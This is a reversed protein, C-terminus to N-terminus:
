METSHAGDWDQPVGTESMKKIREEYIDFLAIKAGPSQQAKELMNRATVLDGSRYSALLQRHTDDLARFSKSSKIFPNGVLAYISFPRDTNRTRLKDLELFAFHHHTQRYVVEDVIMAPGYIESQLRLFAARDVAPGIASYRNNRGHGMPGTFCRGTAVGIALHVQMGRTRSSNELDSNIKDMSEIFRLAAACGAQIHDAMEVPANYYAFIRGGEAQDAVGGTEIITQRLDLSAAALLKTVDDPLNEMKQLDEDALRLECSLVTIERLVGDLIEEAGDDRLKKMALEPLTDHFSGRVTDDRLVGGISKGGAVSLAGIFMAATSPIPNILLGSMAFASFAIALLALSVFVAFGVAHWFQLRQATMIAAAGFIMVAIAEVYGTWPPRRPAEGAVIQAAALAHLAAPTVPGRATAVSAGLETDLGILIVTNSLQHNSGAGALVRAASTTPITLNKPLYLRMASTESVNFRREGISVSQLTRGQSNAASMKITATVVDDGSALRAAELSIAAAPAGDLSWILPTRRVISDGDPALAAIVPPAARALEANLGYLYRAAPLALFDGRYDDIQLWSASNIDTRELASARNPNAPPTGSVGVAGSIKSFAAALREDTHPLLALQQALAADRAGSLWFEGIIEPSLPDPADVPETLIVGKAGAAAAAEVLEALVTRPWPWPGVQDVSDRDILVLHFDASADSTAPSIRQFFDFLLERSRADPSQAGALTGLAIVALAGTVLLLPLASLWQFQATFVKKTVIATEREEFM